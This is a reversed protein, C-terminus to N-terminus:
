GFLSFVTEYSDAGALAYVPVVFNLEGQDNLFLPLFDGYADASVSKRYQSLYFEDEAFGGWTEEFYDSVRAIAAKRFTEETYGMKELLEAGTIEKGTETNLNYAKYYVLDNAKTDFILLISACDGSRYAKYSIEYYLPERKEEKAAQLDKLAEACDAGIRENLAAAGDSKGSFAPIRYSYALEEGFENLLSGEDVSADHWFGEEEEPDEEPAESTEESAAEEKEETKETEEQVVEKKKEEEAPVENKKGCASLTLLLCVALCVSIIRKM